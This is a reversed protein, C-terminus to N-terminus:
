KYNLMTGTYLRSYLASLRTFLDLRGAGQEISETFHVRGDATNTTMDGSSGFLLINQEALRHAEVRQMDMELLGSLEQPSSLARKSSVAASLSRMILRHDYEGHFGTALVAGRPLGDIAPFVISDSPPLPLGFSTSYAMVSDLPSTLVAALSFPYRSSPPSSPSPAAGQVEPEKQEAALEKVTTKLASVADRWTLATAPFVRLGAGRVWVAEMNLVAQVTVPLSSIKEGAKDKDGVGPVTRAKGRLSEGSRKVALGAVDVSSCEAYVTITKKGCDVEMFNVFFFPVSLGGFFARLDAVTAAVPVPSVKVLRSMSEKQRKKAKKKSKGTGDAEGALKRKREKEMQLGETSALKSALEAHDLHSVERRSRPAVSVRSVATIQNQNDTSSMITMRKNSTSHFMLSDNQFIDSTPAEYAEILDSESLTITSHSKGDAFLEASTASHFIITIEKDSILLANLEPTSKLAVSRLGGALSGEIKGQVELRAKKM